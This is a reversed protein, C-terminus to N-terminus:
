TITLGSYKTRLAEIAADSVNYDVIDTPAKPETLTATTM